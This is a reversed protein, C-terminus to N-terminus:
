SVAYGSFARTEIPLFGVVIDTKPVGMEVFVEGVEVDTRNQQIWIKNNKIDFHFPCMYVFQGKRFGLRLLQYHRKEKDFILQTELEKNPQRYKAQRELFAIIIAEYKAITEEM